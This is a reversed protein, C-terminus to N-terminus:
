AGVRKKTSFGFLGYGPCWGVLGTFFAIAAIVVFVLSVAGPWTLWAAYALAAGGLIRIIRDSRGENCTM